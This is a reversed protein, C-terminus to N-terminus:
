IQGAEGKLTVMRKERDIAEVTATATKSDLGESGAVMADGQAALVAAAPGAANQPGQGWLALGKTVRVTLEDGAKVGALDVDASVKIPKTLGPAGELTIT